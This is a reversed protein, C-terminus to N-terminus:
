MRKSVHKNDIELKEKRSLTVSHSNFSWKYPASTISHDLASSMLSPSQHQLTDITHAWIGHLSSCFKIAWFDFELVTQNLKWLYM